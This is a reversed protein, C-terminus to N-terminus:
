ASSSVTANPIGFGLAVYVGLAVVAGIGLGIPLTEQVFYWGFMAISGGMLAFGAALRHFTRVPNVRDASGSGDAVDELAGSMALPMFLAIGAGLGVGALAGVAPSDVVFYGAATFAVVDMVGFLLGLLNPSLPSDAWPDEDGDTDITISM